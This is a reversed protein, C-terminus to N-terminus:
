KWDTRPKEASFAPSTMAGAESTDMNTAGTAPRIVSLIPPLYMRMDPRIRNPTPMPQSASIACGSEEHGMNTAGRTTAPNPMPQMKAGIIVTAMRLMSGRMAPAADPTSFVTRCTPRTIPVAATPARSCFRSTEEIAVLRAGPRGCQRGLHAAPEDALDVFGRLAADLHAGALAAAARVEACPRGACITASIVRMACSTNVKAKTVAMRCVMSIGIMRSAM